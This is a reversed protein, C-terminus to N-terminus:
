ETQHIPPNLVTSQADLEDFFENLEQVIRLNVNMTIVIPEVRIPETRLKVCGTLVLTLGLLSLISKM